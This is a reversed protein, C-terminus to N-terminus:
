ARGHLFFLLDPRDTCIADLGMLVQMDAPDNVTWAGVKLGHARAYAVADPTADPYNPFWGQGGAQVIMDIVPRADGSMKDATFWCSGGLQGIRMLARWDFGVYIAQDGTIAYAADALAVPDASDDSADCKLEVFFQFQPRSLAAVEELTPVIANVPRLLPHALAYDGGPQATGVDYQRLEDLTLDKIRPGPATLWAGDKRALGAKLRFDHHVVVQGDRTLQVDLEAGDCGRAMADAFAALTNEPMLQAGGRHAINLPKM